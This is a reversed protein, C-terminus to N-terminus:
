QKIFKGSWTGRETSIMVIHLGVSLQDVQIMIRSGELEYNPIIQRGSMSTIRLEFQDFRLAPLDIYLEREVTSPYLLIGKLLEDDIGTAISIAISDEDILATYYSQKGEVLEIESTVRGLGPVEVTLNYTGTPLGIFRVYGNEDTVADIYEGQLTRLIAIVGGLADGETSNGELIRSGTGTVSRTNFNLTGGAEQSLFAIAPTPKDVMNITLGTISSNVQLTRPEADEDVVTSVDGYLTTTYEASTSTVYLYYDGEPVFSFAFGGTATLTSSYSNSRNDKEFLIARGQTFPVGDAIAKGAVDFDLTEDSGVVEVDFSTTAKGNINDIATVEVISAGVALGTLQLKDEVLSATLFDDNLNNFTYTLEGNEPDVFNNSLDIVITQSVKITQDLIRAAVIPKKNTTLQFDVTYLKTTEGDQATVKVQASGNLSAANTIEVVAFENAAIAEVTPVTTTGESLQVTYSLTNQTFGAIPDGDVSLEALNADTSPIAVTFVVTYSLQTTGDTATVEITATGTPSTPQNIVLAADPNTATATLVPIATTGIPLEVAYEVVEPDFNEIVQNNFRIESLTAVADPEVAKFAVNYTSITVGDEATVTVVTSGPLATAPTIVVTARTDTPTVTVAPIDAFTSGFPLVVEYDPVDASFGDVTEAGVKLDSLTADAGIARMNLTYTSTVNGNTSTVVITATGPLQTANTVVFTAASNTPTPLIAPVEVTGPALLVEYTLKTSSFDALPTENIAIASLSADSESAAKSFKVTYVREAIGNAATVTITTTSDAASAVGTAPITAPAIDIDANPDISIATVAPFVTASSPLVVEYDLTLTDFAELTTGDITLDSLYANDLVYNLDDWHYISTASGPVGDDFILVVKSLSQNTIQGNFNFSLQEWANAVTTVTDAEVVISSSTANELKMTIRAGAKPSYTKLGIIRNTSLDIPQSLTLVTGAGASGSKSTKAVKLSTNIGSRSPNDALVSPSGNFEAFKYDVDAAEFNVPFTIPKAPELVVNDIIVVGADGALNFFVQSGAGIAGNGPLLVKFSTLSGNAGAAPLDVTVTESIFSGSSQGMGVIISRTQGAGSSADFSLVYGQGATLNVAQRLQVVFPQSPAATEVNAFFYRNGGEFRIEPLQTGFNTTWGLTGSEYNGNTLLSNDGAVPFFVTYTNITAGDEATVIITTASPLQTSAEVVVTATTDSPTAVIVPVATSGAAQTVTYSLTTASFGTVTTGSVTLDALTADTSATAAKTFNIKYTQTVTEDTSTVAVNTTGPLATAPTILVEAGVISPTANVTPVVTTSFPVEVNYELTVSSFDVVTTGNITLDSLSADQAEGAVTFTVSYTETSGDEATVQITTPQVLDTTATVVVISNPDTATATIVPIDSITSGSPLIITYETVDSDFDVISTGDALLDSLTADTGAPALTFAVTYDQATQGDQATVTIVVNRDVNATPAPWPDPSVVSTTANQDSTTFTVAPVAATSYPITVSYTYKTSSFDVLTTGDVQLDSLTADNAATAVTFAVTYTESVSLDESTVVISTTGPLATAATVVATAGPDNTTSTVVPVETTGFPLEITYDTNTPVFGDITADDVRLDSLTADADSAYTIDDWYYVSGDAPQNFDFFLIIKSLSETTVASFDFELVEWEDIATNIADVEFGIQDNTANELRMKVTMGSKPAYSKMSIVKGQSFDIAQNLTIVTGATNTGGNAKLTQGVKGSTNLGGISPNAVVESPAGGFEGFTYAQNNDFVVPFVGPSALELRVNDIIVVGADGALNFFVRNSAGVSFNATLVVAFSSLEGNAGPSPLTVEVISSVFSGFNQGIGVELSRSQGVGSSADFSLLYSQGETLNLVQDLNAAFPQSPNATEINAFFYSNGESQQIEPGGEYSTRWGTQGQEFDGNTLLNSVDQGSNYFYMNDFYAEGVNLVDIVIQQVNTNGSLGLEPLTFDYTLWQGQTIAPDSTANLTVIAENTTTGDNIKFLFSSEATLTKSFWVDFKFNTIGKSTLDIRNDTGMDIINFNNAGIAYRLVSNGGLNVIEFESGGIENFGIKPVDDYSDSFVSFVGAADETPVTPASTPPDVLIFDVTYNSTTQGDEATVLVTTAGPLQAAPSVVANANANTTTALVDPTQSGFPLEVTYNTVLPSFGEVTTGGVTLDSLSADNFPNVEANYFILNDIYVEPADRVDLVFQQINSFGDMGFGTLDAISFDFTIWGGQTMAPSFSDNIRIFAESIPSGIDVVKFIFSSGSTVENPFWMDFRLNSVDSSLMNVQNAGGLEIISFTGGEVETRAYKLVENGNLDIREFSAAGQDNFGVNTVDTYSDSFVSVVEEALYTPAAPGETPLVPPIVREILSVNDIVVVGVDAGMDFLVRSTAGGFNNASLILTFTQTQDTLTVQRTNNTFPDVNLGIGAVMKRSTGAGTSADFSLIYTKYQEITLAQSLNVAFADGATAVDAFNFQNGGDAQINFANGTWSGTAEFDGNVILNNTSTLITFGVEYTLTTNGDQSTVAITTKGLLDNAETIVANAGAFDKEATITPVTTTGDPLVVRYELVEPDFVAIPVGDVFINSLTANEENPIPRIQLEDWFYTTESAGGPENFDFFVIAKSLSKDEILGTFDFTLEEWQNVVTTVAAVEAGIAANDRNELKLNITAGVKPSWTKLSIVKGETFDIPANFGIITGAFTAAGVGKNTQVVTASTNVGTPDPNTVVASGQGEFDLFNYTFATSEFDVPFAPPVIPDGTLTLDDWYYVSGDGAVEFDFFLVVKSLEQTTVLNSFDFDLTEWQNVQTTTVDVSQKIASNASNELQMRITMTKPSYVKMQIKSGSSFDIPNALPLITGAFTAAGQNKTTQVIKTSTNTGGLNNDIVISPSGEFETLNYDFVDSEFTVPLDPLNSPEGEELSIDDFYYTFDNGGQGTTGLEFIWVLKDYNQSTNIDAFNFSLEEWTNITTTTLEVEDFITQPNSSDELKFLVKVDAKPVYVKMKFLKKTSFDIPDDFLISSGGYVEGGPGKVMKAVKSSQNIGTASPNDAITAVGGDFNGFDADSIGSEFDIPLTLTNTGGGSGGTTNYFYINDMYVTSLNSSIVLQALDSRTTTGNFSTIDVDISVWSGTALAPIAGNQTHTVTLIFNSAEATGGGFDVAKITFSKDLVADPTWIDMHFKDMGSADFKNTSFDIGAFNTFTYKKVDDGAIQEDAVDSDDWVASFTDVPRDTYANSFLSIVDGSAETPTTAAVTPATDGGGGTSGGLTCSTCKIDDVYLTGTNAKTTSQDGVDPRILIRNIGTPIGSLTFTLETWANATAITQVNGVPTGGEVEVEFLVNANAVTSYFKATYETAQDDLVDAGFKFGVGGWWQNANTYTIEYVNASTNLGGSSPNSVISGGTEFHGATVGDLNDEFALITEETGGGSGGTTNYFYINDMYVTSLNSSIVLQALDSRTTNGNFSTIDVDISVWSGTALAPIAGNQTHTVTLIFNSAEATGGGFDVAKITFSKDLVADPTWIDMHFKDMGSADFKNTSFDIGAFNTFTYKKVDDGAIQEDAVDSDDWVASFTDVPRDTYANSFLSIVDGSAETPTTAAVTPATDGGGGTSGGLTCSTCKIDDVYLTGTNAKTTSQDGVDPRILIRNIGTPIGSLTFTLETWANATAITQVNGVPTGGEVEVEFLVNANAVTSYFKATYETAQDDLVDAGFKFGVGGWWQNANTYTIEYVNASTNLGGSSPNSVISGGTEFHGATVGDLNDEFALITEETGGGSGGTTNYFYINDMYVTSLNSSIVLQALDSRTTNGNFSTIDVDISVWSGTALAPIAGNQTHTVTLIFNSAEATGGGFDVAKITFSKDLVADPTWIDMHFKDMGSADFKNTSFDIGAFNTFTYKKVDDGAIQEDAVDSDDWVASFTDVPRDTYANSFLSIVDGSAETPTTAAVTPATDGGGGTSGGLTCSTCKIDDVYLTGTNAKTTSQDGVDPRILIRNIGTPIGSLTFTLETWANATAITQVNGVPTGGEVEVEFLVNANAVTSYFKATYETAQDDLVDAGFKFGVGGWWQNANTYTIEYVNASTNLGGSSPNSVISGGTEFHGATVGDLNDEFALITEETGGGSGGTTNYFYINDMYVTSLNSSIVLQALDSRTTNGNFSTIDVDISVWSGTALAPIAGNQTHTVTLIFNSAEATGGGFDVAKITFSKDLVADPTWIDMHFKDMGSADFKNTSFDIGAFNTFTYKKVDDGAIQEDAVDSDDWVASFTDVPRDTYANSFLSIVDGSAETPTTAAVTPATDGGGGTSGGLTCSTCKIDDVYLTGTNAKTTSQDGVDPRILIRNIGTPIGSLTFTLETWANATAITQVNGVPTGGEVEVEFLVNANAVTSYFKATYETAQDDLVDAGFKFGVGGWWQNANTYTIEYVNASTNLGGSSPNSVISGGTEFHGATVGDLNDEFALITEETGGGSGGTTNYFYINDMYVTSLNSSIVLQALDSRTTNGNFSTIDVDISVWSGTALAPIAGNQTHTVTLIFNSAEATGGGFDVAKITFSKDLVADPTWIDMHFKDMGSADFKNTSFDIGAFNTFTYKKVDDGAIQEDAVDSDDWVASFTDVPRDTYANSFLSIVDGSAETPTTAAVTPATDGGGGTSGGLTCSTCKIDDVYLTGTNAKTTSQDGVDPRILIRNIGTPIGSLTFTLETWANATAITQVNGVPTGGEVEVEFLVNANAVTSYFKATYETAQDDLVDAGFKFGVGGWWQNANTYTIEYVNASTNLGGSSPNSVISGGTEFHGATVGDLNDEFALITEETGGGSGGTTNYFYINDMYVTSLNSSIVLQALDSRTTNGNFSTIDVDISVWSGTALAPIAGNQTHTVTLIFNSAEATGGGFDVAKITFSKDLVADPTWIDMHFKDMGSADFKNTSFDIGAFNTFTYKKVDDGAIQEDAVDSDDWVASFTDVPRDTYANSFLSIVDGSAETPTTAAVTPATDGGGGTSGGLTCSTCKIDDVYLTGTNAKTTSQDGVDPRILIRNIGTPIGSLTFTLETWANATAITQVNGVPTGGEVEVEFLVNANAVTSYFKATYETAQDDLVDAGFKFGVGGWWQNANTYTIEYVNASTNLGGSSPNSVISGGTEFHGATVGDLNDEFALITEETGGSNEEQYVRVYDIDMSATSFAPDIAGGIGGMALNLLLYQPSDFPWNNANKSGYKDVPDYTYYEVDDVLFQIENEDWIISYEHFGTTSTSLAKAGKNETSGSSQTNHIASTVEQKNAFQEMIDIEGIAPWPTTGYQDHWFGGPESIDRGLMWIAPWTGAEPPLQARVDVRGYTFAYKSNLRASTYDLDRGQDDYDERRAIISLNGNGVASNLNPGSTRDTYHQAENNAWCGPAGVICDTQFHWNTSSPATGTEFEDSWVLKYNTSTPHADGVNPQAQIGFYSLSLLLLIYYRAKMSRTNHNNIGKVRQKQKKIKRLFSNSKMILIMDAITNM